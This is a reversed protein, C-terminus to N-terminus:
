QPLKLDIARIEEESPLGALISRVIEEIESEEHGLEDYYAKLVAYLIKVQPRTLHLTYATEDPKIPDDSM